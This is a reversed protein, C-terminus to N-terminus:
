DTTPFDPTAEQCLAVIQAAASDVAQGEALFLHVAVGHAALERGCEQTLAALAAKSAYYAAQHLPREPNTTNDGLNIMVGGQRTGAMENQNVFVRGCLQSLLFAGKVNVDLVRGWDWEDMKLLPATPRVTAANILIDIRGCEARTTEVLHVCQFRNAVDATITVANGGNARISQSLRELRDPNLDNLAVTAGAEALATAIAQGVPQAAGTILAIRGILPLSM